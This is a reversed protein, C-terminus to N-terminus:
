DASHALGSKDIHWHIGSPTTLTVEGGEPPVDTYAWMGHPDEGGATAGEVIDIIARNQARTRFMAQQDDHAQQRDLNM